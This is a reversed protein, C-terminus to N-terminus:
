VLHIVATQSPMSAGKYTSDSAAKNGNLEKYHVTYVTRVTHINLVMVHGCIGMGGNQKQMMGVHLVSQLVNYKM